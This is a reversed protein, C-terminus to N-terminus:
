VKDVPRQSPTFNAGDAGRGERLIERLRALDVPKTLHDDFGAARARDRDEASGYGTMAVLFVGALAPMTRLHRAVEYGDMGPLGIDLLVVEPRFEDAAAVAEPGTFAIRTEHGRRRQLLALSRASDENDDVVLIRRPTDRVAPAPAAPPPPAERLVPLRVIFEAGHGRGESRAEVVGGHLTVLRQVLTLGIGLGGHARDLARTAQVFLGFIRPLLEPDIGSGDDRVRVVVEPPEAGETLEARLAIHCADGGYKCANSLLNNFVQELRTGDANLWVPGPPLAVTLEQRRAACMSRALGAVGTLIAALEVPKKRLEIKGETIRSVDLLDDIMRSMNEIQRALIRQAEARDGPGVDPNHLLETANRLPALPNRLEHALMALFEDKSRDAARLADAQAALAQESSRLASEIARQATVDSFYCVVGFHGNPLTVRRTEWDYSKEAGLDVRQETFRPAVYSEGTALTRRFVGVLLAGTEPGWLIRMVEGFDRGLVPEAAAFTPRAPTNVQIIHFQDDVVYVGGPAQNILTSFLVENQRAAEAARRRGTVDRIVSLLGAPDGDRGVLRSVSCEVEIAEGGPTVHINEGRWRGTGRLAAAAAAEDAPQFWRTEYLADLPRGLVASATQGYQREAAANLYIVRQEEDLAVVADSVKALIDSRFRNAEADASELVYVQPGAAGAVVLADVEGARIARLTEESEELRARLEANEARLAPEPMPTPSTM